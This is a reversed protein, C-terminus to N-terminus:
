GHLDGTTAEMGPEVQLHGGFAVGNFRQAFREWRPPVGVPAGAERAARLRARRQVPDIGLHDWGPVLIAQAGMRPVQDVVKTWVPRERGLEPLDVHGAMVALGRRRCWRIVDAFADADQNLDQVYAYVLVQSGPALDEACGEPGANM